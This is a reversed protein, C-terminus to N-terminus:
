LIFIISAKGLMQATMNSGAKYAGLLGFSLRAGYPSEKDTKDYQNIAEKFIPSSTIEKNIPHDGEFLSNEPGYGGTYEFTIDKYDVESSRKVYDKILKSGGKIIQSEKSKTDNNDPLFLKFTIKEKNQM